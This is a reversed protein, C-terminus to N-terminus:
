GTSVLSAPSNRAGSTRSSLRGCKSCAKTRQRRGPHVDRAREVFIGLQLYLEVRDLVIGAVFDFDAM